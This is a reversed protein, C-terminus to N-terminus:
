WTRFSAGSQSIAMASTLAAADASSNGVSLQYTGGVVKWQQATSDFIGLPHNSAAPNITLTVRQTEGPQLTVKKFGILRKPPESASSPLSLYLQPVEAGAVAGTNKVSFQVTIPHTGDSVKPSVSLGSMQFTTYSLGYGFPFLPKIGQAQFWRYGMQLGESYTVTPQGGTVVGPYQAATAAPLDSALVPFTVPLKGSPNAQGFLLKAVINGDEQGPFWAELVAPVSNVWPMLVSANNKLVLVTRPNAATIASIMADQNNPLTIATDAGEESITGALVIVVDAAQAAAVAGALNSNDNAVVTLSATASSGLAALSNQIGQLPLVTYFPIVDSSGNCCGEVATAAYASQGIVAISRVTKANLPLLNGSNKLLVATQLGIQQAVAGDGNTDISTLAISRDFIGYKFMQTYRRKLSTNLNAETLQGADLAAQLKAPTWYAPRGYASYDAPMELDMGALMSTATSHNAFFDSQVYGTFGWENRLVETLIYSNQCMQGQNWGLITRGTNVSNYSCMVSAVNADKVTMEFPLLYIEHLVRDDVVENVTMRNTEQDNAVIHKAMGIIGRNQVAVIEASGMTGALFPDEGFYEFNRGGQPVRALNLGPAEWEHLALNRAEKGVMDGFLAATSTDFSAAIAIASPFSTAKASYSSMTVSAPLGPTDPPVCDQQGIGVPGNTIRFTPIQLSSIGNVHRGGYCQPLEPVVGFSGLLQQQKQLLTMASILLQARQDASLSTNMWAPTDAHALQPTSVAGAILFTAFLRHLTKTKKPLRRM